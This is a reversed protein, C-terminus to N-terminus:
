RYQFFFFFICPLGFISKKSILVEFRDLEVNISEWKSHTSELPRMRRIGCFNSESESFFIMEIKSEYHKANRRVHSNKKTTLGNIHTFKIIPKCVKYFMIKMFTYKFSREKQKHVTLPISQFLRSKAWILSIRLVFLREMKLWIFFLRVLALCPMHM